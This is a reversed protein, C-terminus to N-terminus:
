GGTTSLATPTSGAAPAESQGLSPKPGKRSNDFQNQLQDRENTRAALHQRLEDREKVVAQLEDVQQGLRAREQEAAALQKRLQERVVVVARFDDELKAIKAELARIREAN